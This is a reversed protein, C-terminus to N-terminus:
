EDSIEAEIVPALAKPEVVRARLADAHMSGINLVVQAGGKDDGYADRNFKGALWQRFKVRTNVLQAAAPSMVGPNVLEEDLDEVISHARVRKAENLAETRREKDLNIWSYLTPRSCGLQAAIQKMPVGDAVQEFFWPEGGLAEIKEAISWLFPHGPM